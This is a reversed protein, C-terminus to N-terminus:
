FSSGPQELFAKEENTSVRGLVENRHPYRGFRDIIAKHQREFDSNPLDEYLKMAREHIVQSESHMFPMYLFMLKEAEVFDKDFGKEIASQSLSLALPDQSFANPTNRHINRSFQDLVIIEALSGDADQRWSDLESASARVLLNGFKERITDDLAEQDEAGFWDKPSLDEFWFTLVDKPTISIQNSAHISTCASSARIPSIISAVRLGRPILM